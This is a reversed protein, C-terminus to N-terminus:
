KKYMFNLRTLLIQTIFATITGTILASFLLLPLYLITSLSMLMICAIFIQGIGHAAAGAISVGYISTFGAKKILLMTALAFLGGFLSFLFASIGGGFFSIILCRCILIVPLSKPSLAYLAFLIVINALGLKLGPLPILSTPIFAEFASLAVSLSILVSYLAIRKAISM